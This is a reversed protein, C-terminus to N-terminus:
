FQIKDESVHKEVLESTSNAFPNKGGRIVTKKTNWSHVPRM